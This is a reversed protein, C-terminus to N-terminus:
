GWRWCRSPSNSQVLRRRPAVAPPKSDRSGFLARRGQRNFNRGAVIFPSLGMDKFRRSWEGMLRRNYNGAQNVFNRRNTDTDRALGREVLNDFFRNMVIRTSTDLNHVLAGTHTIATVGTNPYDPRILGQQSM